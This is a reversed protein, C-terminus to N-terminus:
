EDMIGKYEELRDLVAKEEENLARGREVLDEFKETKVEKPRSLLQIKKLLEEAHKTLKRTDQKPLIKVWLIDVEVDPAVDEVKLLVNTIKEYLTYDDIDESEIMRQYAIFQIMLLKTHVGNGRGLKKLLAEARKDELGKTWENVDTEYIDYYESIYKPSHYLMYMDRVKSIM